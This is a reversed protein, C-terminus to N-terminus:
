KSSITPFFLDTKRSAAGPVFIKRRLFYTDLGIWDFHQSGVTFGGLFIRYFDDEQWMLGSVGDGRCM